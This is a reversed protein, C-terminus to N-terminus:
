TILLFPNMQIENIFLAPGNKLSSWWNKQRNWKTINIEVQHFSPQAAADCVIPPLCGSSFQLTGSIIIIDLTNITANSAAEIEAEFGQHIL